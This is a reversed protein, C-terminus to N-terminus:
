LIVLRNVNFTARHNLSLNKCFSLFVDFDTALTNEIARQVFGILAAVVTEDVKTVAFVNVNFSDRQVVSCGPLHRKEMAVLGFYTSNM